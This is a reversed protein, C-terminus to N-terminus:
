WAIVMRAEIAVGVASLRGFCIWSRMNRLYPGVATAGPRFRSEMATPARESLLEPGGNSSRRSASIDVLM